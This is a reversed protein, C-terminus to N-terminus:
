KGDFLGVFQVQGASEDNWGQAWSNEFAEKYLFMIEEADDITINLPGQPRNCNKVRDVIDTPLLAPYITQILKVEQLPNDPSTEDITPTAGGILLNRDIAGVVAGEDIYYLFGSANGLIDQDAQRSYSYRTGALSYGCGEGITWVYPDSEGQTLALFGPSDILLDYWM